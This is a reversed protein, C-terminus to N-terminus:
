SWMKANVGCRSIVRCSFTSSSMKKKMNSRGLTRTRLQTTRASVLLVMTMFSNYIGNINQYEGDSKQYSGRVTLRLNDLFEHRLQGEVFVDDADGSGNDYGFFTGTDFNEPVSGDNLLPFGTSPNFSVDTYAVAFQAYTRESLNLDIIPRIAFVERETEDADFNFNRYAGSVRFSIANNDLLTGVNADFEGTVSGFQDVSLEVGFFPDDEPSKTVTNVIGGGGIPGLAISAPGKLVEYHEVFSDDRQIGGRFANQIRNNIIVPSVFGRSAFAPAGLGRSDVINSVNPLNVIVDIPRPLNRLDILDRDVTNLTFPLEMPDIPIRDILSQQFKGQVIITETVMQNAASTRVVREVVVSGNASRRAKLGTGDLARDLATDLSMDGSIAPSSKGQVLADPAMVIVDYRAGIALLTDALPQAPVNIITPTQARAPSTAALSLAIASASALLLTHGM